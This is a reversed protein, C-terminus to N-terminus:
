CQTPDSTDCGPMGACLRTLVGLLQERENQNLRSIMRERVSDVHEPAAAVLQERGADTLICDRGRGDDSNRERIVLGRREMRHITHSLGSKSQFVQEALHAMRVSGNESESVRVLIEYENLTLDCAETLDNDLAEWLRKTVALYARWLKQEEGTLWAVSQNAENKSM